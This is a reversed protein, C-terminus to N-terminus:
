HREELGVADRLRRVSQQLGPDDQARSDMLDSLAEAIVNLKEQAAEESRRGANELLVLLLLSLVTGLTHIAVQWSKSSSWLPYSALWAVVIAVIVLFFPARSVVQNVAEVFKEFRGRGDDKHRDKAADSRDM